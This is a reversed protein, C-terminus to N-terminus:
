IQQRTPIIEVRSVTNLFSSPWTFILNKTSNPGIEEIITKSFMIANGSVDYVIATADVGFIPDRSKNSLTAEVKAFGLDENWKINSIEMETEYEAYKWNPNDTFEFTVKSPTFPKTEISPEFVAFKKGVPISTIGKRESILTGFYDYLKFVYPVDNAGVTLNPNEVYAALNYIDPVVESFREWTYIPTKFDAVCLKACPGGCDVGSERQNQKGDFCTPGEYFFIFAPVGILVVLVALFVLTYTAKRQVAWLSM